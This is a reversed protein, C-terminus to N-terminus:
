DNDRPHSHIPHELAPARPHPPHPPRRHPHPRTASLAAALTLRKTETLDNMSAVDLSRAEAAFQKLKVDPIDRFIASNIAQGKLWALHGLFKRNNQATPQKPELKLRHWPSKTDDDVRTLLISFRERAAADLRGCVLSQYERNVVARAHQAARQLVSFAPLEFRQRVLQPLNPISTFRPRLATAANAKITDPFTQRQPRRLHDSIESFHFVGKFARPTAM